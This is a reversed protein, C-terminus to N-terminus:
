DGSVFQVHATYGDEASVAIHFSGSLVHNELDDNLDSLWYVFAGPEVTANQAIRCSFNHGAALISIAITSDSASIVNQPLDLKQIENTRFAGHTLHEVNIAFEPKSSPTYKVAFPISITGTKPNHSWKPFRNSGEYFLGVFWNREHTKDSDNVKLWWLWEYPHLELHCNHNCDLCYAGYSGISPHENEFNKHTKLTQGDPLTPFFTTHLQSRISRAPTLELGIDYRSCTLNMTDRVWPEGDYKTHHSPRIDQRHYKKQLDCGTFDKWLYDRLTFHIHFKIDYESYEESGSRGEEWVTGVFKQKRMEVARWNYGGFVHILWGVLFVHHHQRKRLLMSDTVTVNVLDLIRENITDNKSIADNRLLLYKYAQPTERSSSLQYTAKISDTETEGSALVVFCNLVLIALASYHQLFKM